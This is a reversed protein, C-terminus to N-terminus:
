SGNTTQIVGLLSNMFEPNATAATLQQQIRVAVRRRVLSFGYLFGALAAPFAVWQGWWGAAALVVGVALFTAGVMGAGFRDVM